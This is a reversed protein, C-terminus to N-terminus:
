PNTWIKNKLRATLKYNKLLWKGTVVRPSSRYRNEPGYRILNTNGHHWTISFFESLHDVVNPAEKGSFPFV